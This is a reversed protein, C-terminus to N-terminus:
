DQGQIGPDKGWCGVQCRWESTWNTNWVSCPCLLVKSGEVEVKLGEEETEELKTFIIVTCGTEWMLFKSMESKEKKAVAEDLGDALAIWEVAGFVRFRNQRIKEAIVGICNVMM